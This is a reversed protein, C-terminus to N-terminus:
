SPAPVLECTFEAAGMKLYQGAVVFFSYYASGAPVGTTWYSCYLKEDVIQWWTNYLNTRYLFGTAKCELHYDANYDDDHIAWYQWGGAAPRPQFRLPADTVPSFVVYDWFSTSANKAVPYAYGTVNQGTNDVYNAQLYYWSNPDTKKIAGTPLPNPKDGAVIPKDDLSPEGKESM